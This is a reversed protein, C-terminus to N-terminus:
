KFYMQAYNEIIKKAQLAAEPDKDLMHGSNEYILLDNRVGNEGLLKLLHYIHEIPILDDVKGHFIATPVCDPSIYTEPSIKLLESQQKEDSLNSKNVTCGCAKSLIDFKWDEFEGSIGLLFDEKGCNSPPCYVCAAVVPIPSEAKRTYAYMLALHSGASGGSILLQTVNFGYEACKSKIVELASTVDDLEDHVNLEQSIYRYNMTASIYGLNSFHEADVHHVSKDGDVWGGGHIFLIVGSASKVTKPIFIDVKQREHSGYEVDNLFTFSDNMM